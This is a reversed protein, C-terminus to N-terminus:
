WKRHILDNRNWSRSWKMIISLIRRVYIRNSKITYEKPFIQLGLEHSIGEIIKDKNMKM